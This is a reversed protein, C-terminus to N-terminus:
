TSWRSTIRIRCWLCSASRFRIPYRLPDLPRPIGSGTPRPYAAFAGQRRFRLACGQWARGSPCALPLFSRRAQGELGGAPSPSTHPLAGRGQPGKEGGRPAYEHPLTPGRLPSRPAQGQTAACGGPSARINIFIQEQKYVRARSGQFWQPVLSEPNKPHPSLHTFERNFTLLNGTLPSYIGPAIWLCSSKHITTKIPGHLPFTLLNGTHTLTQCVVCMKIIHTM